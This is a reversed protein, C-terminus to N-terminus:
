TQRMLSDNVISDAIQHLDSMTCTKYFTLIPVFINLHNSQEFNQPYRLYLEFLITRWKVAYLSSFKWYSYIAYVSYTMSNVIRTITVIQSISLTSPMHSMFTSLVSTIAHM